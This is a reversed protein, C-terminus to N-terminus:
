HFELTSNSIWDVRFSLEHRHFDMMMNLYLFLTRYPLNDSM